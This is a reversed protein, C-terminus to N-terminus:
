AMLCKVLDLLAHDLLVLNNANGKHNPTMWKHRGCFITLNKVEKWWGCFHVISRNNLFLLIGPFTVLKLIGGSHLTSTM